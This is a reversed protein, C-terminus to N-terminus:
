CWWWGGVFVILPVYGGGMAEKFGLLIDLHSTLVPTNQLSLSGVACLCVSGSGGLGWCTARCVGRWTDWKLKIECNYHIKWFSNSFMNVKRGRGEKWMQFLGERKGGLLKGDLEGLWGPDQIIGPQKKKILLQCVRWIVQPVLLAIKLCEYVRMSVM